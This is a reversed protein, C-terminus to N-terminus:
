TRKTHVPYGDVGITVRPRYEQGRETKSKELHHEFCLSQRNDPTDTGGKHLPVIHDLENAMTVHGSALCVVCLPHKRFHARRINQLTMGRIRKTKQRDM